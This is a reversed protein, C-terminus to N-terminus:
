FLKFEFYFNLKKLILNLDEIHDEIELSDLIDKATDHIYRGGDDYFVYFKGKAIIIKYDKIKISFKSEKFHNLLETYIGLIMSEM